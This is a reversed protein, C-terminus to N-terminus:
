KPSTAIMACLIGIIETKTLSPMIYYLISYIKIKQIKILKDMFLTLKICKIDPVLYVYEFLNDLYIDDIYLQIFFNLQVIVAIYDM